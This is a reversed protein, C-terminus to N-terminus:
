HGTLTIAGTDANVQWTHTVNCNGSGVRAFGRLHGGAFFEQDATLDLPPPVLSHTISVPLLWWREPPLNHSLFTLVFDAALDRVFPPCAGTWAACTTGQDGLYDWHEAGSFVIRHKVLDLQTWWAGLDASADSAGDGWVFLSATGLSPLPNPHPFAWERWGGSLSAYASFPHQQRALIRGGLLAGWSHGVIATAPRPLLADAFEWSARMWLLLEEVMAVAPVDEAWPYSHDIEPVVVVYGARALRAAFLDWRRFHDAEICFGHLLLVLPYRGCGLLPPATDPSGGTSPFYVRLRMPPGSTIPIERTGHFVPALVSPQWGLACSPVNLMKGPEAVSVRRLDEIISAAKRADEPPVGLKEFIGHVEEPSRNSVASLHKWASVVQALARLEQDRDDQAM